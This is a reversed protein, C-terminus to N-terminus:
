VGGPELRVVLALAGQKERSAPVSRARWGLTLECPSHQALVKARWGRGQRLRAEDDTRGETRLKLASTSSPACPPWSRRWKDAICTCTATSCMYGGTVM